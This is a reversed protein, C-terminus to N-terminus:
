IRPTRVGQGNKEKTIMGCMSPTGYQGDTRPAEKGKPERERREQRGERKGGRERARHRGGGAYIM